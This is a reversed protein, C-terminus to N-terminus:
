PVIAIALSPPSVFEALESHYKLRAFLKPKSAGFEVQIQELREFRRRGGVGDDVNTGRKVFERQESGVCGEVIEYIHIYRKQVDLDLLERILGM